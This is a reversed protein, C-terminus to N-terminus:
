TVVGTSSNISAGSTEQLSYSGVTIDSISVSGGSGSVGNWTYTQSYSITPSCTGGAAAATTSYALTATVDSYVKAGASQTFTVVYSPLTGEIPYQSTDQQVPAFTITGSRQSTTNNNSFTVYAESSDTTVTCWSINSGSIQWGVTKTESTAVGNLYKQIYASPAISATGTYNAAYSTQSTSASIFYKWTFASAAQTINVTVTKGSDAQTFTVSGTRSTNLPNESVTINAGSVTIWDNSATATYSVNINSGSVSGNVYPTKYSTLSAVKTEGTNAFSISTSSTSFTYTYQTVAALQTFSITATKGLSNTILLSGSRSDNISDNPEFTLTVTKSEFGRTKSVTVYSPAGEIKWGTECNIKFSVSGGISPVELSTPTTSVGSSSENSGKLWKLIGILKM